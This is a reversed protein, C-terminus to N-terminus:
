WKQGVASAYKIHVNRQDIQLPHVLVQSRFDVLGDRVDQVAAVENQALRYSRKLTLEGRQTLDFVTDAHAASQIGKSQCQQTQTNPRTVFHDGRAVSKDGGANAM